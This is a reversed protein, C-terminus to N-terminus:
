SKTAAEGAQRGLKSLHERYAALAALDNDSEAPSLQSELQSLEQQLAKVDRRLQAHRENGSRRRAFKAFFSSALNRGTRTVRKRVPSRYVFVVFAV